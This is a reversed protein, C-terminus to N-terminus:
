LTSELSSLEENLKTSTFIRELIKVFVSCVKPDKYKIWYFRNFTLSLTPTQPTFKERFLFEEKIFYNTM